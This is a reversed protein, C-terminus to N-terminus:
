NACCEVQELVKSYTIREFKEEIPVYNAKNFRMEVPFSSDRYKLLPNIIEEFQLGNAYIARITLVDNKKPCKELNEYPHRSSETKLCIVKQGIKFM